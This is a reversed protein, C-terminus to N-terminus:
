LKSRKIEQELKNLYIDLPQCRLSEYDKKYEKIDILLQQKLNPIRKGSLDEWYENNWRYYNQGLVIDGIQLNNIKNNETILEFYPFDDLQAGGPIFKDVRDQIKILTEHQPSFVNNINSEKNRKIIMTKNSNFSLVCPFYIMYRGLTCLKLIREDCYWDM